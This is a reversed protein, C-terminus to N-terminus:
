APQKALQNDRHPLVKVNHNEQTSYIAYSDLKARLNCENLKVWEYWKWHGQNYTFTVATDFLKLYFIM